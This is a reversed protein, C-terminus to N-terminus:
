HIGVTAKLNVQATLNVTSLTNTDFGSVEFAPQQFDSESPFYNLTIACTVTCFDGAAIGNANPSILVIHVKAPTSGSAATYSANITTGAEAGSGTGIVVGDDIAPPTTSKVTVGDPLSITVDYGAIVTGAPIASNVVSSLSVVATTPQVPPQQEEGNTGGGCGSLLVLGLSIFLMNAPTRKKM